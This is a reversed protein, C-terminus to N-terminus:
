TPDYLTYSADNIILDDGSVSVIHAAGINITNSDGNYYGSTNYNTNVWERWTMGEEAQYETGSITFTILSVSGGGNIISELVSNIDGTIDDVEDKTYYNSLDVTGSGTSGEAAAGINTRAQEKQQETLTQSVYKVYTATEVDDLTESTSVAIVANKVLNSIEIPIQTNNGLYIGGDVNIILSENGCDVLNENNYTNTTQIVRFKNSM